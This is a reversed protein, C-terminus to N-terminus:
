SIILSRRHFQPYRMFIGHITWFLSDNVSHLEEEADDTQVAQQFFM